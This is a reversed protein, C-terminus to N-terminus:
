HTQSTFTAILPESIRIDRHEITSVVNRITALIDRALSISSTSPKATVLVAYGDMPFSFLSLNKRKMHVYKIEGFSEDFDKGMSIILACQMLLMERQEKNIGAGNAQRTIEEVARGHNNIISVSQISKNVDLVANCLTDFEVNYRSMSM